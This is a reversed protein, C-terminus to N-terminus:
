PLPLDKFSFRFPVEVIRAPATYSLKWDAAQGRRVSGPRDTFHYTVLARQSGVQDIVYNTAALTRKGDKNVLVLENNAVLSGAQFSELKRNGEPYDLAIQVSWAERGLVVKNVRCVVEEQVARRQAGDPVAESLAALDSDFAFRIMKSPTIALLKGDLAAITKQERPLGPLTLELPLSFKGDVPALSSGEDGVPIDKGKDDRLRVQQPQTELFLPRLTPTWTVELSVVCSGRDSDLDRSAATRLVRVRFPGDHSVPPLREGKLLPQLTVTGDRGSQMPKAGAGAAIADIAQWFSAKDLALSVEREGDGLGDQVTIGTQRRIEMLAKPLPLTDRISVSPVALSQQKESKSWAPLSVFCLSVLLLAVLRYPNM